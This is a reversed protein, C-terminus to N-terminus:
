KKSRMFYLVAGLGLVLGAGLALKTLLDKGLGAAEAAVDTVKDYFLAAPNYQLLPPGWDDVAKFFNNKAIEWLTDDAPDDYMGGSHDIGQYQILIMAPVTGNFPEVALWPNKIWYADVQHILETFKQNGEGTAGDMLRVLFAKLMPTQAERNEPPTKQFADLIDVAPRNPNAALSKLLGAIAPVQGPQDIRFYWSPGIVAQGQIQPGYRQEVLQRAEQRAAESAGLSAFLLIFFAQVSQETSWKDVPVQSLAYAMSTIQEVEAAISPAVGHLEDAAM